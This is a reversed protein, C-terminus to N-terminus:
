IIFHCSFGLPSNVIHDNYLTYDHRIIRFYQTLDGQLTLLCHRFFPKLKDILFNNIGTPRLLQWQLRKLILSHENNIINPVSLEMLTKIDCLCPASSTRPIDLTMRSPSNSATNSEIGATKKNQFIAGMKRDRVSM